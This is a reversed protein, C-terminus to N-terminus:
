IYTTPLPSNWLTVAFYKGKSKSVWYIAMTDFEEKLFDLDRISTYPGAKLRFDKGAMWDLLVEVESNYRKGYAALLIM